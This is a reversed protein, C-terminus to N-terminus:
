LTNMDAYIKPQKAPAIISPLPKCLIASSLNMSLIDLNYWGHRGFHHDLSDIPLRLATPRGHVCAWPNPIKRMDDLSTKANRTTTIKRGVKVSGRCANLFALHHGRHWSDGSASWRRFLRATFRNPSPNDDEGSLLNPASALCWEDELYTIRDVQRLRELSSELLATQKADFDLKLPQLRTQSEWLKENYRLREFRIREHQSRMSIM